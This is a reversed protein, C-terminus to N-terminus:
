DHPGGHQRQVDDPTDMDEWINQDNSPPDVFVVHLKSLIRRVPVDSTGADVLAASLADRRLMMTLWQESGTSDRAIYAQVDDSPEQSALLEVARAPHALDCPLVVLWDATAAAAAQALAAVPGAFAEADPIWTVGGSLETNVLSVTPGVVVTDSSVLSLARIAREVLPLGDVVLSAKDHGMRSSRGGALVVGQVSRAV